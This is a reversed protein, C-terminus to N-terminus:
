LASIVIGSIVVAACLLKKHIKKEGFFLKGGIITVICASQKMLTMVSILSGEAATSRFIIYEALVFTGSLAWLYGNKLASRLHLSEHKESHRILLHIGHLPIMFLLYWYLMQLSTLDTALAKKDIISSIANFMNAALVLLIYKVPICTATKDPPEKESSSHFQMMLLGGCVLFLGIMHFFTMKEGLIIVSLLISFIVRSLDLVGYTGVPLKEVATFSLSWAAFLVLSKLFVPILLIPDIRICAPTAPLIFIFSFVSYFFLVETRSNRTMAKKKFIERAGKLLGYLLAGVAWM